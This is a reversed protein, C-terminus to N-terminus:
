LALGLKKSHKACIKELVNLLKEIDAAESAWGLSVRVAAGALEADFGMATLVHSASVKGSSCASGSSVAIGALDLQILMTEARMGAIAFQCCSEIRQAGKGFIVADPAIDMLGQEFRDRLAGLRQMEGSVDAGQQDKGDCLQLYALDAAVGFGVIAQVDETGARNRNEQPGGTILPAPELGERAMILAGIGKPGGLKHSSLAMSTCGIQGIDLALRGAAQVADIHCYADYDRALAAIDAIPQVVGTESNVAMVAIMPVGQSQDHQALLARLASLDVVGKDDVAIASMQDAAFRGGSLISPHEVASHYLHSAPKAEYDWKMDPTLAQMNAETAGSTFIVSGVPAAVLRAVQARAREIAARAERGESHISSANGGLDMARILAERVQPRLPATANYDLYHRM